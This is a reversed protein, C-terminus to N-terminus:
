HCLGEDLGNFQKYQPKLKWGDHKFRIIIYSYETYQSKGELGFILSVPSLETILLFISEM